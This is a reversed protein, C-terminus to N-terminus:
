FLYGTTDRNEEIFSTINNILLDDTFEHYKPYKSKIDIIRKLGDSHLDNLADTKKLIYEKLEKSFDVGLKYKIFFARIINAEITPNLNKYIPLKQLIDLTNNRIFRSYYEINYSFNHLNIVLSDYNFFCGKAISDLKNNENLKVLRNKFAWNNELSWLDVVINELKLKIGGHRNKTYCCNLDDVIDLLRVSDIDVIIDIDRSKKDSLFDRFYGGVIYATGYVFVTLLLQKLAPEEILQQRFQKEFLKKIDTGQVIM